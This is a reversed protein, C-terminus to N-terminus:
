LRSGLVVNSPSGDHSALASARVGGDVAAGRKRGIVRVPERRVPAVGAAQVVTADRLIVRAAAHDRDHIVGPPVLDLVAGFFLFLVAVLLVVLLMAQQQYKNNNM